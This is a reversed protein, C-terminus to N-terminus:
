EDDGCIEAGDGMVFGRPSETIKGRQVLASLMGELDLGEAFCAHYRSDTGFQTQAWKVLDNRPIPGHDAVQHLIAHGHVSAPTQNMSTQKAFGLFLICPLAIQM